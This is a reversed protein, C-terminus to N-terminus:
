TKHIRLRVANRVMVFFVAGLTDFFLDKMIDVVGTQTILIPTKIYLDAIFEHFEWIVGGFVAFSVLVLAEYARNSAVLAKRSFLYYGAFAALWVGGSFHMPIDLWRYQWYASSFFAVYHAMLIACIGVALWASERGLRTELAQVM